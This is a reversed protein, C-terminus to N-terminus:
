CRAPVFEAFQLIRELAHPLIEGLGRDGFVVQVGHEVTQAVGNQHGRRVADDLTAIFGRLTQETILLGFEHAFRQRAEDVIRV